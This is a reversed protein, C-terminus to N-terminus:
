CGITRCCCGYSLGNLTTLSWGLSLCEVQIEWCGTSPFCINRCEDYCTKLTVTSDHPQTYSYDCCTWTCGAECCKYKIRYCITGYGYCTSCACNFCWLLFRNRVRTWCADSHTYVSTGFTTDEVCEAYEGASKYLTAHATFCWGYDDPANCYCCLNSYYVCWKQCNVAYNPDYAALDKIGLQLYPQEKWGFLCVTDGTNVEGACLRKVYPNSNGLEDHFYWQGASLYSYCCDCSPDVLKMTRATVCGDKVEFMVNGESDYSRFDTGSFVTRAGGSATQITAGQIIGATVCGLNASLASLCAVYIKRATIVNDGFMEETLNEFNIELASSLVGPGYQDVGRVKIWINDTINYQSTSDIEAGIDDFTIEGTADDFGTIRATSGEGAGKTIVITDGTFYGDGLGILNSDILSTASGSQATGSRPSKSNITL